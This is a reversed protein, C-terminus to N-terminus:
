ADNSFLINLIQSTDSIQLTNGLMVETMNLIPFEM